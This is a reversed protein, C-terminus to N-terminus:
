YPNWLQPNSLSSLSLSLSLIILTLTKSKWLKWDSDLPQFSSLSSSSSSLSAMSSSLSFPFSFLRCLLNVFLPYKKLFFNPNPKTLTVADTIFNSKLETGMKDVHCHRQSYTASAIRFQQTNTYQKNNWFTGNPPSPSTIVDTLTLNITNFIWYSTPKIQLPFHCGKTSFWIM